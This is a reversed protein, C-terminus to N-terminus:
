KNKCDNNKLYCGSVKSCHEKSLKSCMFLCQHTKQKPLSRWSCHSARKTCGSENKGHKCSAAGKQANELNAFDFDNDKTEDKVEEAPAEQTVNLVLPSLDVISQIQLKMAEADKKSQNEQEVLKAQMEQIASARQAAAFQQAVLQLKLQAQLQIQVTEKEKELAIRESILNEYERKNKDNLKKTIKQLAIDLSDEDSITNSQPNSTNGPQQSAGNNVQQPALQYAAALPQITTSQPQFTIPQTAVPSAGPLTAAGTLSQPMVLSTAAMSGSTVPVAPSIYNSVSQWPQTAAVPTPTNTYVITPPSIVPTIVGAPTLATGSAASTSALGATSTAAPTPAVSTGADVFGPISVM